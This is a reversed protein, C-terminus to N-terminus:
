KPWKLKASPLARDCPQGVEAALIGSSQKGDIQRRRDDTM